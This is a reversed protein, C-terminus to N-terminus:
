ARPADVKELLAKLISDTSHGEIELEPAPTIRHRLTPLAMRKVDDPTVFDRGAILAAARSARALAIGGRPGAGAAIGNWTRTARSIRVAYDLVQDDLRVAACIGQMAIVTSPKLLTQVAELIVEPNALIYEKVLEKVRKEQEPSLPPKDAEAFSPSIAALAIAFAAAFTPLRM